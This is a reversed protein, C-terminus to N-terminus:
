VAEGRFSFGEETCTRHHPQGKSDSLLIGVHTGRKRHSHFNKYPKKFVKFSWAHTTPETDIYSFTVSQIDEYCDRTM